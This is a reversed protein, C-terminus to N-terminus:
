DNDAAVNEVGFRMAMVRAERPTLASLTTQMKMRLEDTVIDEEVDTGSVLRDIPRDRFGVSVADLSSAMDDRSRYRQIRQRIWWTAYTSFKVGRDPDFRSAAYLLGLNGQQVLDDYDGMWSYKNVM